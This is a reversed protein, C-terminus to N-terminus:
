GRAGAPSRLVSPARGAGGAPKGRAPMRPPPPRSIARPHAAHPGEADCSLVAERWCRADFATAREDRLLVHEQRALGSLLLLSRARHKSTDGEPSIECASGSEHAPLPAAVADPPHTYAHLLGSAVIYVKDTEDGVHFVAEGDEYYEIALLRCIRLAVSESLKQFFSLGRVQPYLLVTCRLVGQSTRYCGAGPPADCGPGSHQLCCKRPSLVAAYIKRVDTDTRARPPKFFISNLDREEKSGRQIGIGVAHDDIGEEGSGHEITM